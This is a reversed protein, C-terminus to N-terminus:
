KKWEPEYKYETRYKGESWSVPKLTKIYANIDKLKEDLVKDFDAISDLNEPWGDEWYDECIEHLHNPRCIVLQLEDSELENEEIYEEISEQNWFYTDDNYIVLPTEGDWEQFEKKLYNENSRKGACRACYSNKPYIHGLECKKHTALHQRATEETVIYKPYGAPMEFVEITTKQPLVVDKELIIKEKM